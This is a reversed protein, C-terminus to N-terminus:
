FMISADGEAKLREEAEFNRMAESRFEVIAKDSNWKFNKLPVIIRMSKKSDELWDVFTKKPIFIQKLRLVDDENEKKKEEIRIIHFGIQSEILKNGDYSDIGFLAEQLEPIVQDKKVWGLEGEKKKSDGESFAAVVETFDAGKELQDQAESAKQKVKSNDLEKQLVYEELIDKYASPVVVNKKFDDLTWGYTKQLDREVDNTTGFEELKAEVVKGIDKESISIGRKEALAKITKDEILKELVDKEKIKLRKKGSETSFDVRLGERSLDNTEYFKEISALNDRVESLYVVEDWGIIAAPIPVFKSVKSYIKKGIATDTGYALISAVAVLVILVISVSYVLTSIKIKKEEDSM